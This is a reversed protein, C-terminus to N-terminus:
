AAARFGRGDQAEIEVRGLSLVGAKSFHLRMDGVGVSRIDAIDALSQCVVVLPWDAVPGYGTM